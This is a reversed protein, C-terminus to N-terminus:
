NRPQAGPFKRLSGFHAHCPTYIAIQGPAHLDLSHCLVIAPAGTITLRGAPLISLDSFAYVAAEFPGRCLEIVERYDEVLESDGFLYAHGAREIDAQERASFGRPDTVKRGSWRQAPLPWYRVDQPLARCTADDVGIWRKLTALSRTGLMVPQVAAHDAPDTSLVLHQGPEVTLSQWSLQVGLRTVEETVEALGESGSVTPRFSGTLFADDFQRAAAEPLPSGRGSRTVEAQM